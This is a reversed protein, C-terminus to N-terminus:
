NFCKIWKCLSNEIHIIKGGNQENSQIQKLFDKKKTGEESKIFIKLTINPNGKM